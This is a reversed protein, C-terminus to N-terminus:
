PKAATPRGGRRGNIRAQEKGEATTPGTSLGGHWKCRGSSYLVRQKCPTGAKTRAGCTMDHLYEPLPLGLRGTAWERKQEAWFRRWATLLKAHTAREREYGPATEAEWRARARALASEWRLRATSIMEGSPVHNSGHVEPTRNM